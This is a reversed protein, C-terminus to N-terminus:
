CRCLAEEVEGPHYAIQVHTFRLPQLGAKYHALDRRRDQTQQSPTRHFAGGDTEVVLKLDPWYFDVQFGNVWQQTLPKPLGARKAIPLFLRELHSRTLTFGELLRRMPEVGSQGAHARLSRELERTSTLGLRIAENVVQELRERDLQAALDILTRVPTTVPIRQRTTTDKRPLRAPRHVLIGDRRYRRRGSVSVEIQTPRIQWFGWLMAASLHSLAAATGCTLVAGMWEGEMALESRGVAFVGPWRPHLRATAVRHRIAKDSLGVSRLQRRHVVGWQRAAFLSIESDPDNAAGM